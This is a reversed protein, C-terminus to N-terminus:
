FAYVHGAQMKLTGDTEVTSEDVLDTASGSYEMESDEFAWACGPKGHSNLWLVYKGGETLRPHDMTPLVANYLHNVRAYEQGHEEGPWGYGRKGSDFDCAWPYVEMAPVVRHALLKFYAAPDVREPTYAHGNTHFAPSMDLMTFFEDNEVMDEWYRRVFGDGRFSYLGIQSIGFITVIECRQRMGLKQLDAQFQIIEEFQPAKDDGGWDVCTSGLNHYSDWFLGDMGTEERMQKLQGFIHDRFGSRMRGCQLIKYGAHWPEGNAARLIWDAHDKWIPASTSFQFGAWHFVEIGHAHAADVLRKMGAPGGFADDHRFAYPTCINGHADPDTTAGEWGGHTYLQHYGMRQFEPFADIMAQQADTGLDLLQADWLHGSVAPRPIELQFGYSAHVRRRVEVFCDLWLNRREHRALATPHRYVLLKREPAVAKETLPFFPRETFHIADEGAVKEQRTRSLGPRESFLCLAADGKVLFDCICAGVGRPMMDMPYSSEWSGNTKVQFCEATIFESDRTVHQEQDVAMVNQALLFSGDASGDIEFTTDELLWHIPHGPCDVEVQMALGTWSQGRIEEEIARFRWRITAVASEVRRVRVRSDGMSDVEQVRPMWRGEARLVLTFESASEQVDTLEFADFRVGSESEAYVIWPVSGDRLARVNLAVEGIGLFREGDRCLELEFGNSLEVRHAVQVNM